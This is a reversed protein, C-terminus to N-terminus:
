CSKLQEEKTQNGEGKLLDNHLKKIKIRLAKNEVREKRLLDQTKKRNSELKSVQTTAKLLRTNLIDNAEKNLHIVDITPINELKVNVEYVKNGVTMALSLTDKVHDRVIKLTVDPKPFQKVQEYLKMTENFTKDDRERYTDLWDEKSAFKRTAVGDFM